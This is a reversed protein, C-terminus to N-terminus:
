CCEILFVILVSTSVLWLDKTLIMVLHEWFKAERSESCLRALPLLVIGLLLQLSCELKQKPAYYNPFQTLVSFSSWLSFFYLM